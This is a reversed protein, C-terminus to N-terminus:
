EDEFNKKTIRITTGTNNKAVIKLKNLQTITLQKVRAEEYNAM